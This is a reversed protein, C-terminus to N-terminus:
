NVVGNECWLCYNNFEFYGTCFGCKQCNTFKMKIGEFLLKYHFVFKENIGYNRAVNLAIDQVLDFSFCFKISCNNILCHLGYNRSNLFLIDNANIKQILELFDREFKSKLQDLSFCHNCKLKLNNRTSEFNPQNITNGVNQGLYNNGMITNSTITNNYNQNLPEPYLTASNQPFIQLISYNESSKPRENYFNNLYGAIFMQCEACQIMQIKERITSRLNYCVTCLVHFKCTFIANGYINKKCLICVLDHQKIVESGCGSCIDNIDNKKNQCCQNCFFHFKCYQSSFRENVKTFNGCLNCSFLAVRWCYFCNDLKKMLKLELFNRRCIECAKHKKCPGENCISASCIKCKSNSFFQSVKKLLSRESEYFEKCDSCKIKLESKLKDNIPIEYCSNCTYHKICPNLNLESGEQRKKCLACKFNDQDM